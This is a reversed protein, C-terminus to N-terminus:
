CSTPTASRTTDLAVDKRRRRGGRSEPTDSM